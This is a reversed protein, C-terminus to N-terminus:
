VIFDIQQFYCDNGTADLSFGGLKESNINVKKTTCIFDAPFALIDNELKHKKMFQYLM